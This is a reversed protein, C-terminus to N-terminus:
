KERRLSGIYGAVIKQVKPEIEGMLASLSHLILVREIM